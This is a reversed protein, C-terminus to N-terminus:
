LNRANGDDSGETITNLDNGGQLQDEEQISPLESDSSLTDVDIDVKERDDQSNKSIHYKKM